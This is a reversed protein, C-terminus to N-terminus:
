FVFLLYLRYHRGDRILDLCFSIYVLQASSSQSLNQIRPFGKQEILRIHIHLFIEIFYQNVIVSFDLLNLFQDQWVFISGM